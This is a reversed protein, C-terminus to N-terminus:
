KGAPPGLFMEENVDTTGAPLLKALPEVDDLGRKIIPEMGKAIDPDKEAEEFVSFDPMIGADLQAIATKTDFDYVKEQEPTGKLIGSTLTKEAYEVAEKSIDFIEKQTMFRKRKTIYEQTELRDKTVKLRGEAWAAYKEAAAIKGDIDSLASISGVGAPAAFKKSEYEKKLNAVFGPTKIKKEYAAWDITPITGVKQTAEGRLTDLTADFKRWAQAAPSNMNMVLKEWKAPEFRTITRRLM